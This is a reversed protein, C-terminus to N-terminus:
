LSKSIGRRSQTHRCLAIGSGANIRDKERALSGITIIRHHINSGYGYMCARARRQQVYYLLDNAGQFKTHYSLEGTSVPEGTLVSPTTRYLFRGQSQYNPLPSYWYWDEVSRGRRKEESRAHSITLGPPPLLLPLPPHDKAGAPPNNLPPLALDRRRSEEYAGWQPKSCEYPVQQSLPPPHKLIQEQRAFQQQYSPPNSPDAVSPRFVLPQSHFQPLDPLLALTTPSLRDAAQGYSLQYASPCASPHQSTQQQGRDASNALHPLPAPATPSPKPGHGHARELDLTKLLALTQDDPIELLSSLTLGHGFEAASAESFPSEPAYDVKILVTDPVSSEPEGFKTKNVMKPGVDNFNIGKLPDVYPEPGRLEHESESM